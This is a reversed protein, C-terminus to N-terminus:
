ESDMEIDRIPKQLFMMAEQIKTIAISTERRGYPAANTMSLRDEVIALLVEVTLQGSGFEAHLAPDTGREVVYFVPSDEDLENHAFIRFQRNLHGVRHSKIERPKM